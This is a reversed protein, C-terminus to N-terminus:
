VETSTISIGFNDAKATPPDVAVTQILITQEGVDFNQISTTIIPVEKIPPYLYIAATFSLTWSLMRRDTFSGDWSDEHSVSNLTVPIDRILTFQPIEKVNITFTPKFFPLIQELIALGDDMNKSFINLDFGLNYPVPDYQGYLTKNSDSVIAFTQQTSALKRQSDYQMSNFEYSMRPLIVQVPNSGELGSNPDQTIRYYWKEKKDFTLPVKITQAINGNKDFRDIEIDAFLNAFAVVAKRIASFYYAKNGLM